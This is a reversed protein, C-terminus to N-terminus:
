NTADTNINRHRVEYENTTNAAHQVAALLENIDNLKAKIQANISSWDSQKGDAMTGTSNNFTNTMSTNSNDIADNLESSAAKIRAVNENFTEYELRKQGM